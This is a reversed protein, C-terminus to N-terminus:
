VNDIPQIQLRLVHFVYVALFHQIIIDELQHALLTSFFQQFVFPLLKVIMVLLNIISYSDNTYNHM